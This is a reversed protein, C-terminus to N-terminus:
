FVKRASKDYIEQMRNVSEKVGKIMVRIKYSAEASETTTGGSKMAQDRERLAERIEKINQHVRKKIRTFEDLGAEAQAQEQAEPTTAKYIVELRKYADRMSSMKFLKFKEHKRSSKTIIM